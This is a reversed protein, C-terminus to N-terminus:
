ERRQRKRPADRVTKSEHCPRRRDDVAAASGRALRLAPVAIATGAAIAQRPNDHKNSSRM